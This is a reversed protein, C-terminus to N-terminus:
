ALSPHVYGQNCGCWTIVVRGGACCSQLGQQRQSLPRRSVGGSCFSTATPDTMQACTTGVAGEADGHAMSVLPMMGELGGWNGRGLACRWPHKRWLSHQEQDPGVGLPALVCPHLMDGMSAGHFLGWPTQSPEAPPHAAGMACPHIHSQCCHPSVSAPSLVLSPAAASGCGWCRLPSGLPRLGLEKRWM